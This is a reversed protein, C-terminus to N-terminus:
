AYPPMAQGGGLSPAPSTICLSASGTQRGYTHRPTLGSSGRRRATHCWLGCQQKGSADLDICLMWLMCFCKAVM